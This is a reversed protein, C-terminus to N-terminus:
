QALMLAFCQIIFLTKCFQIYNIQVSPNWLFFLVLLILYKVYYSKSENNFFPFYISQSFINDILSTYYNMSCIIINLFYLFPIAIRIIKFLTKCFQIYNMQLSSNWLCFQVLLILYKVYYSKSENNFFPFYISQSFINDILSTYYNMSCIIINLFYLFPIAIRILSSQMFTTVTQM